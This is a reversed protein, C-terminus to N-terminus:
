RSHAHALSVASAVPSGEAGRTRSGAGGPRPRSACGLKRTRVLLVPHQTLFSAPRSRASRLSVPTRPEGCAGRLVRLALLRSRPSLARRPSERIRAAPASARRVPALGSVGRWRRVRGSTALAARIPATASRVAQRVLRTPCSQARRSVKRDGCPRLVGLDGARLRSCRQGSVRRVDALSLVSAVPLLSSTRLRCM